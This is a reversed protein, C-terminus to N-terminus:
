TGSLRHTTEYQNEAWDQWWSLLVGKVERPRLRGMYRLPLYLKTETPPLHLSPLHHAPQHGCGLMSSFSAPNSRPPWGGGGGSCLGCGRACNRRCRGVESDAERPFQGRCYHSPPNINLFLYPLFGLSGM